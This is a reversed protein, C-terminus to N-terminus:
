RGSSEPSDELELEESEALLGQGEEVHRGENLIDKRSLGIAGDAAALGDEPPTTNSERAIAVYLACGLILGSGAWSVASPTSNLVVKDYFLAFLMQTYVMSTARTGYGSGGSPPEYALGATLLYQMTFGTLGLGLLLGWELLNGPLRFSVSPSALMAILSIVMTYSSFYTVSVLAHTRTGLLRIATTACAAGGVGVLALGVALLHHSTPPVESTGGMGESPQTMTSNAPAMEVASDVQGGSFPNAILAVGLLSVLGAMQQKRTFPENPMLFSCAYCTVIPALFTLVTAEAIPMYLLSYYMGIVGFFGGFSRLALLKWVDRTGFPHAVQAYWMYLYSAAITITM